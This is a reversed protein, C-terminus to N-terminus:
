EAYQADFAEWAVDEATKNAEEDAEFTAAQIAHAEVVIKFDDANTTTDGYLAQLEDNTLTGPAKVATFLPALAVDETTGKVTEKYRFEFSITNKESDVEFGVYNWDASWGTLLGTYDGNLGHKANDVIAQVASHNEITLIMRVYSEESEKLVTVVPDKLYTKGPILHYDNGVEKRIATEESTLERGTEDVAKGDSNVLTEDLKIEVNGVTFTNTISSRDTLYAITGIVTSIVLTCVCAVSFLIKKTKNM